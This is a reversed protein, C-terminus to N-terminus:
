KKDMIGALRLLYIANKTTSKGERIKYDFIIKDNEYHELFHYNKVKKIDCLEFDHTTIITLIKPKNLKHAVETAGVIRDITNTGKFIEDILVLMPKDSAVYDIIEKIRLVEGYFTSIGSSVDDVVKMSTFLKYFCANFDTACTYTGAKFLLYNLGISRMFTTKGSMNSGTVINMGTLRFDNSVAKEEEILPHKIDNFSFELNYKPMCTVEKVYKITALSYLAEIKGISEIADRMQAMYKKQWKTYLILVWTDLSITSNVLINFLVNRRSSIINNLINFKKIAESDLKKVEDQYKLLLKSEYKTNIIRNIVHDFGYFQNNIPILNEQVIRIESVIVNTLVFGIILSCLFVNYNIVGVISLILTTINLLIFIIGSIISWKKYNIQNSILNLANDMSSVRNDENKKNYKRLAVEFSLHEDLDSSLEKIAEQRMELESLSVDRDKLSNAFNLRGYATRSINLYQYISARGFLDLDTQYYEQNDKFEIGTDSFHKWKVDTRSIHDNICAIKYELNEEIKYEKSHFIVTIIFFVVLLSDIIIAINKINSDVYFILFLIAIFCFLIITRITSFKKTKNKQINLEAELREKTKKLNDKM